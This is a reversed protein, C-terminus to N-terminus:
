YDSSSVKPWLTFNHIIYSHNNRLISLFVLAVANLKLSIIIINSEFKSLIKMHVPAYPHSKQKVLLCDGNKVTVIM